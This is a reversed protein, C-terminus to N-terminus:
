QVRKMNIKWGDQCLIGWATRYGSKRQNKGAAIENLREELESDDRPHPEYRYTSRAIGVLECARRESIDRQKLM